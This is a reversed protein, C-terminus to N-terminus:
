YIVQHVDAADGTTLDFKAPLPNFQYGGCVLGDIAWGEQRRRRGDALACTVSRGRRVSVARESAPYLPTAVRPVGLAIETIGNMAAMRRRVAIRRARHM